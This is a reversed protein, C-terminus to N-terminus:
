GERTGGMAPSIGNRTSRARWRAIGNGCNFPCTICDVPGFPRVLGAQLGEMARFWDWRQLSVSIRLGLPGCWVLRPCRGLHCGGLSILGSPACCDQLRDVASWVGWWQCLAGHRFPVGGEGRKAAIHRAEARVAAEGLIFEGFFRFEIAGVEAADFAADAIGANVCIGLVQSLTWTAACESQRRTRVLKPSVAQSASTRSCNRLELSGISPRCCM